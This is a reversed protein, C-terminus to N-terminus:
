ERRRGRGSRAVQRRRRRRGVRRCRRPMTEGCAALADNLGAFYRYFAPPTLGSRQTVLAPTLDKFPVERVLAATMDLIRERTLLAREGPSRSSLRDIPGVPKSVLPCAGARRCSGSRPQRYDSLHHLTNVMCPPKSSPSRTGDLDRHESRVRGAHMEGIEARVHDLNLLGADAVRRPQEAHREPALAWAVRRQFRPFDLMMSSRRVSAPRSTNRSRARPASITISPM